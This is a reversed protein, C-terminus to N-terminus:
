DTGAALESQGKRAKKSVDSAEPGKKGFKALLFVDAAMLIGYIAVFAVLSTAVMATSVNPSVADETRQLGFVIWPQRGIETMIWGFTNAIYPLFLAFSLLWLYRRQKLIDMKRVIVLLGYGALALMAFGAGVMLRFSWYTLAVPPIYNKGAGYEAEYEAQLNNIGKVEGDLKNYSLLSLMRPLRIAFVEERQDLDGITILSFSAPDESKFLGEAAAMKMPQTEVMHQAQSHGVLIVLVVGILGYLTAMRFSRRFFEQNETKRLLHWASIGLVFFGATTVGSAFVHPWQVLVNPNTILKFFNDM